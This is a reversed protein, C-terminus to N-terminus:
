FAVGMYPPRKKILVVLLKASFSHIFPLKWDVKIWLGAAYSGATFAWATPPSAAPSAWLCPNLLSIWM